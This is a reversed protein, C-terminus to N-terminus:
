APPNVLDLLVDAHCPQSLACRCVLDHGALEARADAVTLAPGPYTWLRLRATPATLAQRYVEICEARTMYRVHHSTIRGDAHKYPHHYDPASIRTELEWEAGDLAPVRALADRTRWRWPTAWRSGPGVYIANEPVRWGRVAPRHLRVPM